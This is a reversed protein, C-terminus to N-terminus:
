SVDLVSGSFMEAYRTQIGKCKLLKVVKEGIHEGEIKPCVVFFSIGKKNFEPSIQLRERLSEMAEDEHGVLIIKGDEHMFPLLEDVLANNTKDGLSNLVLIDPKRVATQTQLSKRDERSATDAYVLEIDGGSYDIHIALKKAEEQNKRSNGVIGIIQAGKESLAIAIEASTDQAIETVLAVKGRLPRERNGLHLQQDVSQRVNFEPQTSLVEPTTM